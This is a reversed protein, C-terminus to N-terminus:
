ARAIVRAGADRKLCLMWYMCESGDSLVTAIKGKESNTAYSAKEGLRVIGM